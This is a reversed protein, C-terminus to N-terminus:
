KICIMNGYKIDNEDLFKYFSGYAKKIYTNINRKKYENNKKVYIDIEESNFSKKFKDILLSLEIYKNDSIVYKVISKLMKNFYMKNIVEYEQHNKRIFFLEM